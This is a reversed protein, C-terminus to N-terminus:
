TAAAERGDRWRRLDGIRSPCQEHDLAGPRTFSRLEPCTYVTPAIPKSRELRQELRWANREESGRIPNPPPKSPNPTPGHVAAIRTIAIVASGRGEFKVKYSRKLSHYGTVVGQRGAHPSVRGNYISNLVRVRTGNPLLYDNMQKDM